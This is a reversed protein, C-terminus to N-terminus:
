VSSSAAEKVAAGKDAGVKVPAPPGAPKEGQAPPAARVAPKAPRQARNDNDFSMEISGKFIAGDELVVRPAVINGRVRASPRLIVMEEGELDGEVAGEIVVTRSNINAKVQGEAGIVVQYKGLSITGEVQGQILLDEEGSVDGKIIISSGITAREDGSAPSAKSEKRRSPTPLPSGGDPRAEDSEGKKWM